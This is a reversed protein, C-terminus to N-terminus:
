DKVLRVSFGCVKFGYFQYLYENSSNLYYVFANTSDGGNPDGVGDTASFWFAEGGIGTFVGKSFRSGGPLASFGSKNNKSPVYGIAGPTTDLTRWDTKAAMSKAIKNSDITGDWNYGNTILYNILTDWDSKTSVHWGKPALRKTDISYWNYLAGFKEITDLNITNKHYCYKGIPLDAWTATSTDLTISTSDNYRTTRLNEATWEQNGIKVTKYVNGDIDTVTNNDPSPGAPEKLCAVPILFFAALFGISLIKIIPM